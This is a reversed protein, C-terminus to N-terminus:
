VLLFQEIDEEFLLKRGGAAESYSLQSILLALIFDRSFGLLELLLFNSNVIISISRVIASTSREFHGFDATAVLLGDCGFPRLM